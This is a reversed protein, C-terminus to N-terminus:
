GGGVSVELTMGCITLPLPDIQRVIISGGDSWSAPVALGLEETRLGPAAGYDEYRRPKVESLRDESPGAWIGGSRYVRLWVRSVNKPRGQGFGSDVQLALPLTQIDATIPLGIHVTSAPQDLTIAGGSVVRQPMVAGDALISVTKGELWTLGSITTVPAGGAYTAGCDVFFADEAADFLRPAFREIYRVSAGNITRRVVVYVADYSGEAVVAVSEFVGDTDHQHWAGVQQEPVYTLGLLKGNSSVFWAIPQPSKAFAADVIDLNDFLHPARLSLDGTVYGSSQWAYALERIHGGRAAAYILNNNIILPSVNNAGIFSQPRVSVTSPTIADSNLSTVRWEASGTLLVLNSLPVIHRITNAERAAVRFTIADDDRTPLSYSMNSETGSRTMWLTQPKSTTGAFCRRQEFYSVAGPYNGAGSFPSQQQPPTKSVDATIDSDVFSTQETQGIYGYLGNSFKYIYYRKAGAVTPWSIANSAGTQLLNNKCGHLRYQGTGSYTGTGVTSLLAGSSNKVSFYKDGPATVYWTGDVGTLGTSSLDIADGEALNHTVPTNLVAPTSITIGPTTGGAANLPLSAGNLSVSSQPSEDLASDNVATVVYSYTVLGSPSSALTASVSVSSPAPLASVFSITSLTWNTAGLRRLELPQYGPHTLTLVDASQVYKIEFLDEAHYPNSVEYPTTGDTTITAGQTHFRFYGQGVEIVITQTSSYTFPILRTPYVSAKVERVFRTGPRNQAPGHPLVIFNRCKALGSQYKADDIHAWFEPTVEGGAFSRQQTRASM